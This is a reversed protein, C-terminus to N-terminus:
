FSPHGDSAQGGSAVSEADSRPQPGSGSRRQGGSASAGRALQPSSPGQGQQQQQMFPAPGPRLAHFVMAGGGGGGGEEGGGSSSGGWAGASSSAPPPQQQQQPPAPHNHHGFIVGRRLSAAAAERQEPPLRQLLALVGAVVAYPDESGLELVRAAISERHLLLARSELVDRNDTLWRLVAVDDAWLAAELPTGPALSGVLRGGGSSGSSGSSSSSAGGRRQAAAAQAAQANECHWSRLLAVAARFDLQAAAAVLRRRM